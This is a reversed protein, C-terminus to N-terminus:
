VNLSGVIVKFCAEQQLYHFFLAGSHKLVNKSLYINGVGFNFSIKGGPICGQQSLRLTAHCENGFLLLKRKFISWDRKKPGSMEFVLM